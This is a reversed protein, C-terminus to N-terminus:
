FPGCFWFPGGGGRGASACLSGLSHWSIREAAPTDAANLAELALVSSYKTGELKRRGDLVNISNQAGGGQSTDLCDLSIGRLVVHTEGCLQGVLLNAGQVFVRPYTKEQDM